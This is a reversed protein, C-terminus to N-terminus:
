LTTSYWMAGGPNVAFCWSFDLNKKVELTPSGSDTGTLPKTRYQKNIYIYFYAIQNWCM